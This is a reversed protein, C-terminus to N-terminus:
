DTHQGLTKYKSNDNTNNATRPAWCCGSSSFSHTFRGRRGHDDRKDGQKDRVKEHREGEKLPSGISQLSTHSWKVVVMIEERTTILVGGDRYLLMREESVCVCGWFDRTPNDSQPMAYLSESETLFFWLLEVRNSGVHRLLPPEVVMLVWYYGKMRMGHLRLPAM